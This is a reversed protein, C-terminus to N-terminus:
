NPAILMRAIINACATFDGPGLALLAVMQNKSLGKQMNGLDAPHDSIMCYMCALLLTHGYLYLQKVHLRLCICLHM